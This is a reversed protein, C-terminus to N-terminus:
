PAPGEFPLCATRKKIAGALHSRRFFFWFFKQGNPHTTPHLGPKHVGRTAFPSFNKPDRKKLFPVAQREEM